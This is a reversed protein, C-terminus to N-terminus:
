GKPSGVPRLCRAPAQGPVGEVTAGCQVCRWDAVAGRRYERWRCARTERNSFVAIVVFAVILGVVVIM